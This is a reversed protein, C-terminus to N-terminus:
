CYHEIYNMKMQNWKHQWVLSHLVVSMSYVLGINKYFMRCTQAKKVGCWSGLCWVCPSLIYAPHDKIHQYVTPHLGHISLNDFCLPRRKVWAFNPLINQGNCKNLGLNLGETSSFHKTNQGATVGYKWHEKVQHSRQYVVDLTPGPSGETKTMGVRGTGSLKSTLSLFLFIYGQPRQFEHSSGCFCCKMLPVMWFPSWCYTPSNLHSANHSPFALSIQRTGPGKRRKVM